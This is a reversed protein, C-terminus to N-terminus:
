ARIIWTSPTISVLQEQVTRVQKYCKMCLSEVEQVPREYDEEIGKPEEEKTTQDVVAGIKPFLESQPAAM